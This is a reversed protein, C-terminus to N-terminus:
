KSIKVLLYTDLDIKPKFSVNPTTYIPKAALLIDKKWSKYTIGCRKGQLKQISKSKTPTPIQCSPETSSLINDMSNPKLPRIHIPNSIPKFVIGTQKSVNGSISHNGLNLDSDPLLLQDQQVRQVKLPSKPLTSTSITSSNYSISSTSDLAVIKSSRKISVTHSDLDSYISKNSIDRLAMRNSQPTKKSTQQMPNTNEDM